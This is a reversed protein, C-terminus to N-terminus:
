FHHGPAKAYPNLMWRIHSFATGCALETQKRYGTNDALFAVPFNFKRFPMKLSLTLTTLQM